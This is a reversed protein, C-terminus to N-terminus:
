ILCLVFRSALARPHFGNEIGSEEESARVTRQVPVTFLISWCFVLAWERVASEWYCEQPLRSGAYLQGQGSSQEACLYVISTLSASLTVNGYVSAWCFCMMMIEINNWNRNVISYVKQTVCKTGSAGRSEIFPVKLYLFVVIRCLEWEANYTIKFAETMVNLSKDSQCSSHKAKILENKGVKGWLLLPQSLWTVM